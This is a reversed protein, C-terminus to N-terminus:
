VRIYIWGERQRHVVYSVGSETIKAEPVLVVEIGESVAIRDITNRCAVFTLNPYDHALRAIRAQIAPSSLRKRLLDLGASHAVVEVRLKHGQRKYERLVTEIEDLLEPAETRTSNVVHFVIRTEEDGVQAPRDGKGDPNLLVMRELGKQTTEVPLTFVLGIALMTIGAVMAWPLWRRYKGPRLHAPPPQDYASQVMEKISRLQCYERSAKPDLHLQKLREAKEDASFEGDVLANLYEESYSGKEENNM